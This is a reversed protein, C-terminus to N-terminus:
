FRRPINYNWKLPCAPQNNESHLYWRVKQPPPSELLSQTKFTNAPAIQIQGEMSWELTWKPTQLTEVATWNEFGKSYNKPNNQVRALKPSIGICTKMWVCVLPGGKGPDEETPNGGCEACALSIKWWNSHGSISINRLTKFKLM